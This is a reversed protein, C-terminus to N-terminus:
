TERLIATEELLALPYPLAANEPIRGLTRARFDADQMRCTKSRRRYFPSRIMDNWLTAIDKEPFRGASLPTFDCPSMHGSGSLYFQTNAAFCFSSGIESTLMSQPTVVPYEPLRRYARTLQEILRRAQLNLYTHTDTEGGQEDPNGRMRGVPIADFFTVEDVGLERGLEVMDEFVGNEVRETTLYSSLAVAMGVEKAYGVSAVLRTFLGPRGRLTDHTRADASDVSFFLGSLGAERLSRARSPSLLEGNTFAVAQAREQDVYSLIKEMTRRLLPEGGLLIITTVGLEVAQEIAQGLEADGLSREGSNMHYEASCHQCHCQCGSTIGITAAQPLRQRGFKRQLRM